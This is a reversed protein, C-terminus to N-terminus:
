TSEYTIGNCLLPTSSSLGTLEEREKWFCLYITVGICFLLHYLIFFHSGWALQFIDFLFGGLFSGAFIGLSLFSMFISSVIGYTEINQPLNALKAGKNLLSFGATQEGGIGIGLILLAFTITFISMDIFLYPAPGLLVLGCIIILSSIFGILDPNGYKECVKSIVFCSCTFSISNCLFLSGVGLPSLKLIRVHPELTGILLGVCVFAGFVSFIGVISPCLRILKFVDKVTAAKSNPYNKPLFLIAFAACLLFSGFLSFPLIFGGLEFLAGGIVPGLLQGFSFSSQIVGFAMEINESFECSVIAIGANRIMAYGVAELVRIGISTGLFLQVGNLNDVFGFLINTLGTILLGIFSITVAGFRSILIGTFPCLLFVFLYFIGFVIGHQSPSVGKQEAIMPYFPGQLSNAAASLLNIVGYVFLVFWQKKSYKSNM